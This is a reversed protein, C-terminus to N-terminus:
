ELADFNEVIYKTALFDYKYRLYEPKSQLIKQHIDEARTVGQKMVQGIEEVRYKFPPGYGMWTIDKEGKIYSNFNLSCSFQYYILILLIAVSFFNRLRWRENFKKTVADIFIGIMIFQVPFLSVFHKYWLHTKSFSLFIIPTFFWLLLLSYKKNVCHFLLYMIASLLLIIQILDLLPVYLSHIFGRTSVLKFPIFFTDLQIRFSSANSSKLFKTLNYFNNKLEYLSYPLYLITLMGLGVLYYLPKIKPRFFILIFFFFFLYFLHSLHLQTFIGLLVFCALIYKDEKQIIVKYLSYFFGMVFLFMIDRPWIKRSYFIVWPNVSFFAASVLAIKENFFKCCFLFCLYVALVNLLAIYGSAVVPNKSFLFPISLLYVLMPSSYTGNSTIQGVLPFIGKYIFDIALFSNEAEDGKFEMYWINNLRLFTALFIILILLIKVKM